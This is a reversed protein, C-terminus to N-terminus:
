HKNSYKELIKDFVGNKFGKALYKNFEKIFGKKKLDKSFGIYNPDRKFPTKLFVIKDKRQQLYPDNNIQNLASEIGPGIIAADARDRLLLEIRQPLKGSDEIVEILKENRREEWEDSYSAGRTSLIRKGTLDDLGQYKFEKGKVVVLMLNDHYIVDSYDIIKMRDSTKSLGMIAGKGRLMNTYSRKWPALEYKFKCGMEKGIYNLMDIFIGKPVGDELYSKPYKQHNGYFTFDCNDKANKDQALIVSFLVQFLLVIAFLLKM